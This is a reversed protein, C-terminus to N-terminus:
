IVQSHFVTSLLGEQHNHHVSLTLVVPSESCAVLDLLASLRALDATKM